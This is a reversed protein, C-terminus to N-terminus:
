LGYPWHLWSIFSVSFDTLLLTFVDKGHLFAMETGRQKEKLLSVSELEATVAAHLLWWCSNKELLSLFRILM